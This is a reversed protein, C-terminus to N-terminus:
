GFFTKKFAKRFNANVANYIFPNASSNLLLLNVSILNICNEVAQSPFLDIDLYIRLTHMTIYTLTPSICIIYITTIVLCLVVVQREVFRAGSSREKAVLSKSTHYLKVMIASYLIVVTLLPISCMVIFIVEAIAVRSTDPTSPLECSRLAALPILSGLSGSLWTSAVLMFKRRNSGPASNRYMSHSLPKCVAFYREIAITLVTFSSTVLAM